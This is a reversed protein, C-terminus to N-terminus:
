QAANSHYQQSHQRSWYKWGGGNFPRAPRALVHTEM